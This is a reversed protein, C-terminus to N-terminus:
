TYEEPCRRGRIWLLRSHSPLQWIEFSPLYPEASLEEESVTRNFRFHNIIHAIDSAPQDTGTLPDSAEGVGGENVPSRGPHSYGDPGWGPIDRLAETPTLKAQSNAQEGEGVQSRVQELRGEIGTPTDLRNGDFDDRLSASDSDSEECM